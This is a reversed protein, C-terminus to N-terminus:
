PAVTLYDTGYVGARMRARAESARKIVEAKRAANAEKCEQEIEVPPRPIRFGKVNSM